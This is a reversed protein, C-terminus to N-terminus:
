VQRESYIEDLWPFNNELQRIIFHLETEPLATARLMERFGQRLVAIDMGCREQWLKEALRYFRLLAGERTATVALLNEQPLTELKETYSLWRGDVTLEKPGFLDVFYLKGAENLVLNALKLDLGHPLRTVTQGAVSQRKLAIPPYGALTEVVTRLLYWKRFNPEERNAVMFEGDGGTILEEYSFIQSEQELAVPQTYFIIPINWGYQELNTRYPRLHYHLDAALEPALGKGAGMRKWLVRRPQREVQYELVSVKSQRGESIGQYPVVKFDVLPEHQKLIDMAKEKPQFLEAHSKFVDTELLRSKM